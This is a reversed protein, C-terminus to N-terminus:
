DISKYRIYQFILSFFRHTRRLTQISKSNCENLERANAVLKTTASAQNIFGKFTMRTGDYNIQHFLEEATEDSFFKSISTKPIKNKICSM